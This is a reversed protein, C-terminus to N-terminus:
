IKKQQKHEKKLNMMRTKQKKPIKMKTRFYQKVLIKIKLNNIKKFKM